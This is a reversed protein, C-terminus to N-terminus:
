GYRSVSWYNLLSLAYVHDSIENEPRLTQEWLKVAPTRPESSETYDFDQVFLIVTDNKTIFMVAM